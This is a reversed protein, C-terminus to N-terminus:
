KQPDNKGEQIRIRIWLGSQIRIRIWLGTYNQLYRLLMLHEKTLHSDLTASGSGPDPSKQGRSGPHTFILIRIRSSCGPDCKGSSLFSKKPNFYKFEKIRIRSLFIRIQSGPHFSSPDPTFMGSGCSSSFGHFYQLCRSHKLTGRSTRMLVSAQLATPTVSDTSPPKATPLSPGMTWLPATIATHLKEVAM